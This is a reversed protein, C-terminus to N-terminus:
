HFRGLEITRALTESFPPEPSLSQKPADESLASNGHLRWERENADM